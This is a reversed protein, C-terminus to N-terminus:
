AKKIKETFAPDNYCVFMEEGDMIDRMAKAKIEVKGNIRASVFRVNYLKKNRNENIYRLIGGDVKSADKYRNKSIQFLYAKISDDDGKMIDEFEDRNLENGGYILIYGIFDGKNFVPAKPMISTLRSPSWAFLGLGADPITSKKVEIHHLMRSCYKCFPYEHLVDNQCGNKCKAPIVIEHNLSHFKPFLDSESMGHFEKYMQLQISMKQNKKGALDDENTTNQSITKIQEQIEKYLKQQSKKERYHTQCFKSARNTKGRTVKNCGSLICIQTPKIYGFEIATEDSLPIYIPYPSAM